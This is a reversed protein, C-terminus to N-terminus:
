YSNNAKRKSNDMSLLNNKLYSVFFVYIVVHNFGHVKLKIIGKWVYSQQLKLRFVVYTEEDELEAYHGRKGLKPM